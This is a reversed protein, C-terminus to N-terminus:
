IMNRNNDEFSFIALPLHLEKFIITPQILSHRHTQSHEPVNIVSFSLSIRRPDNQKESHVNMTKFKTFQYWAAVM